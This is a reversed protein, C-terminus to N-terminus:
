NKKQEQGNDNQIQREKKRSRFRKKKRIEKFRVKKEENFAHKRGKKSTKRKYIGM